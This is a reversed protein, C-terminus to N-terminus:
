HAKSVGESPIGVALEQALAEAMVREKSPRGGKNGRTGGKSLKHGMQFRM